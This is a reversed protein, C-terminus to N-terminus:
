IDGGGVAYRSTGGSGRLRVWLPRQPSCLLTMSVRVDGVGCNDAVAAETAAENMPEAGEAVAAEAIGGNAAAAAETAAENMPEAGEAVAAEASGGSAAM